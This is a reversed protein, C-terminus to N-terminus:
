PHREIQLTWGKNANRCTNTSSWIKGEMPKLQSLQTARQSRRADKIFQNYGKHTPPRRSWHGSEKIDQNAGELTLTEARRPSPRQKGARRTPTEAQGASQAKGAWRVIPGQRGSYSKHTGYQPDPRQKGRVRERKATLSIYRHVVQVLHLQTKGTGLDKEKEREKWWHIERPIGIGLTDGRKPFFLKTGSYHEFVVRFNDVIDKFYASNEFYTHLKKNFITWITWLDSPEKVESVM